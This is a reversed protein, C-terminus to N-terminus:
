RLNKIKALTTELDACAEMAADVKAGTLNNRFPRDMKTIANYAAEISATVEADLSANKSKVFVSLSNASANTSTKGRGGFYSNRISVINNSYDDISNWSYWSEVQLVAQSQNGNKAEGNPGGIKQSGVEGAIDICGDIIQDVADDLSGFAGTAQGSIKFSHAFNYLDPNFELEEILTLDRGTIGESGHWASWLKVCDNRLYETAAILYTKERPTLTTYDKPSNLGNEDAVQNEGSFILYEITHFGHVNSSAISTEDIDINSNLIKDIQDKDLPWSDLSPDLSLREAPGFLFGESQEWPIRAARWAACVANLGDQSPEANFAEVADYLAWCKDKMDSYTVIVVDDVYTDISATFDYGYGVDGDVGDSSEDCSTFILAFITLLSWLCFNFKKM